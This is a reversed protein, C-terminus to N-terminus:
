RIGRRRGHNDWHRTWKEERKRVESRRPYLRAPRSVVRGTERAIAWAELRDDGIRLWAPGADPVGRTHQLGM